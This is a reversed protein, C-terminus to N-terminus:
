VHARSRSFVYLAAVIGCFLAACSPEPVVALAANGGAASFANRWIAYDAADVLNNKNGDAKLDVTSGFNSKWVQFDALDVDGNRNYDGNPIGVASITAELDVRQIRFITLSGLEINTGSARGFGSADVEIRIDASSGTTPEELTDDALVAPLTSTTGSGSTVELLDLLNREGLLTVRATAKTIEYTWDYEAFGLTLATPSTWAVDQGTTSLAVNWTVPNIAWVSAAFAFHLFMVLFVCYRKSM